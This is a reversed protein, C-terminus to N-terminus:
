EGHCTGIYCTDLFLQCARDTEVDGPRPRDVLTWLSVDDASSAKSGQISLLTWGAPYLHPVVVVVDDCTCTELASRTTNNRRGNRPDVYLETESNELIPFHRVM